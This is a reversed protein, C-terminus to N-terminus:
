RRKLLIQEGKGRGYKSSIHREPPALTFLKGSVESQLHRYRVM